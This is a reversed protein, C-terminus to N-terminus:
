EHKLTRTPNTRAARVLQSSVTALAIFLALAAAFFYPAPGMTIRYAYGQLWKLVFYYAAPWAIANAAIVWLVFERSFLFVVSATSAGMVKRIGIEKTRQEAMFSALGFLGLCSVFVALLSFFRLIAGIQEESRYIAEVDQKLFRYHFEDQPALKKWVAELHRLAEATKEPRIKAFLISSLPPYYGIVLPDIKERLVTFNYNKVMGVITGKVDGQSL